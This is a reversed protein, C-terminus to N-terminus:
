SSKAIHLCVCSENATFVRKFHNRANLNRKHNSLMQLKQVLVLENHPHARKQRATPELSGLVFRAVQTAASLGKPEHVGSRLSQRALNNRICALEIAISPSNTAHLASLAHTNDLLVGKQPTARTVWFPRPRAGPLHASVHLWPPHREGLARKVRV